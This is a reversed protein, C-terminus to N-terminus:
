IAICVVKEKKLDNFTYYNGARKILFSKNTCAWEGFVFLEHTGCEVLDLLRSYNSPVFILEDYQHPSHHYTSSSTSTSTSSCFLVLRM